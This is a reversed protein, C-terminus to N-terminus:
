ATNGDGTDVVAVIRELDVTRHAVIDESEGAATGIATLGIGIRDGHVCDLLQLHANSRKIDALATECTTSDVSDSLTTGVLEVATSVHVVGVLVHVALVVAQAVINLVFERLTRSLSVTSGETARDDLVLEEEEGTSFILLSFSRSSDVWSIGVFIDSFSCQLLDGILVILQGAKLIGVASTLEAGLGKAQQGAQVPVDVDVVMQSEAILVVVRVIVLVTQAAAGIGEAFGAITHVVLRVREDSLQVRM